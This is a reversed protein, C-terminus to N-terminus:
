TQKKSRAAQMFARWHSELAELGNARVEATVKTLLTDCPPMDKPELITSILGTEQLLEEALPAGGHRRKLKAQARLLQADLDDDETGHMEMVAEMLMKVNGGRQYLAALLGLIILTVLLGCVRCIWRSSVIWRPQM